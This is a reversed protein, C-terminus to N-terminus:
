TRGHRVDYDMMPPLQELSKPWTVLLRGGPNYDGFLVDAIATGAEQANQSMTLIAPVNEESWNVAYPFDAMLFLVMRPNASHVTKVLEEEQLSLSRRDSNEM